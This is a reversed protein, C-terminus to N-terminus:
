APTPMTKVIERLANGLTQAVAVKAGFPNRDVHRILAHTAVEEQYAALTDALVKTVPAQDDKAASMAADVADQLEENFAQLESELEEALETEDPLRAPIASKLAQLQSQVATFAGKFALLASRYAVVGKAPAGKEPGGQAATELMDKLRALAAIGRSYQGAEAQETAFAMTARLKQADAPNGSLVETFREEIAALSRSWEAEDGGTTPAPGRELLAEIADLAEDGKDLDNKAAAIAAVLPKLEAGLPGALATKIAGQMAALRANFAKTRDVDPTPSGDTGQALLKEADDLLANAQEFDRKRAFVGAESVKLKIDLAHPGATTIAEKVKPMLATLRATFAANAESVGENKPAGPSPQGTPLPPAQPVESAPAGLLKELTELAKLGADYGGSDGKERAFATVARIKSAEAGPTRLAAAVLPELKALREEFRAKLADSPRTPVEATTGPAGGPTEEGEEENEEGEEDLDNPDEGRVRVKLRLEVQTLLAAKLKKALGAAQSQVVFTLAKQELLCEGKIFKLGGSAGLYEKLLKGRAPSISRRSILIATDKGTTAILVPMVIDGKRLQKILPIMKSTLLAPSEEEEEESSEAERQAQQSTKRQKDLAKDLLDLYALLEKDAKGAKRLVDAQKGIEDLAELEDKPGTKEAKALAAMGKILAADKYDKGKSFSKWAAETLNKETM